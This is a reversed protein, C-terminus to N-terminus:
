RSQEVLQKLKSLNRAVEQKVMALPPPGPFRMPPMFEFRETVRTNEGDPSLELEWHARMMDGKRKPAHADWTLKRPSEVETVKAETQWKAGFILMLPTYMVAMMVKMPLGVDPMREYARYTSGPGAPGDSTKEIRHPQYNWESHRTLDGIYAWVREPSASIVQTVEGKCTAM